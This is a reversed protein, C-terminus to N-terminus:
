LDFIRGYRSHKAIEAFDPDDKLKRLVGLPLNGKELADYARKVSGDRAYTRALDVYLADLQSSRGMDTYVKIARQFDRAADDYERLKLLVAARQEYAGAWADNQAVLDNYRKIVDRRANRDGLIALCIEAAERIEDEAASLLPNFHRKTRSDLGSVLRPITDLVALRDEKSPAEHAALRVLAAVDEDQVGPGRALARYYALIEGV